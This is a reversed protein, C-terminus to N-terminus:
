GKYEKRKVEDYFEQSDKETIDFYERGKKKDYEAHKVEGKYMFSGCRVYTRGIFKKDVLEIKEKKESM